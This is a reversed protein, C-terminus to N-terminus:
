ETTVKGVVNWILAGNAGQKRCFQWLKADYFAESPYPLANAFKVPKDFKYPSVLVKARGASKAALWLAWRSSTSAAVRYL